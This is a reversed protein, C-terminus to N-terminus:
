SQGGAFLPLDDVVTERTVYPREFPLRLRERSLAVYEPSLESGIYNRGLRRAVIATTGSGMFPDFVVGPRTSAHCTCTPQWGLTKIKTSGRPTDVWGNDKYMPKLGPANKMGRELSVDQQPVFEREVVRVYPAGCKACVTEPCGAKICREPLATPFTAFHAFAQPETAFSWVSRCNRGMAANNGNQLGHHKLKPDTTGGRMHTRDRLGWDQAAERIAEQDFWYDPSKTLLYIMEHAKTTRDTVSEPMPNVKHWIIEDRVWWGDDQLAIALRAPILMRDKPKLGTTKRTRGIGTDGHLDSVHKGSTSGGWKTDNAYSDGMNIWCTGDRRLVRRAERFLTVLRDIFAAPTDELGIQNDIRRAGCKPCVGQYQYKQTGASTVQKASAEGNGGRFYSHDCAPDGGEWKATGYDRLGFYPPSTVICNVSEDPLERLFRLADMVWVYDVTGAVPPQLAIPAGSPIHRTVTEIRQERTARRYSARFYAAQAQQTSPTLAPLLDTM